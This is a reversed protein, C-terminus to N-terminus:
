GHNGEAFEIGTMLWAQLDQNTLYGQESVYVFGKMVKGTFDMERAYNKRLMQLYQERPVRIMLDDKVIGIAMKGHLMFALGGFMKKTTFPVNMQQLVREIREQLLINYPM